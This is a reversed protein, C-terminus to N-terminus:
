YFVPEYRKRTQFNKGYTYVSIDWGLSSGGLAAVRPRRHSIPGDRNRSRQRPAYTVIKCHVNSVTRSVRWYTVRYKFAKKKRLPVTPLRTTTIICFFFFFHFFTVVTNLKHLSPMPNLKKKTSPFRFFFFLHFFVSHILFTYLCACRRRPFLQEDDASNIYYYRVHWVTVFQASHLHVFFSLYYYFTFTNNRNRTGHGDLNRYDAGDMTCCARHM